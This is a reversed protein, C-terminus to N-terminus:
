LSQEFTGEKSEVTTNAQQWKWRSAACFSTGPPESLRTLWLELKGLSSLPVVRENFVAYSELSLSNQLFLFYM